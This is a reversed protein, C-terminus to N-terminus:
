FGLGAGHLAGLPFDANEAAITIHRAVLMPCNDVIWRRSIWAM